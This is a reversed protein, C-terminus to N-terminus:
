DFTIRPNVIVYLIDAILIGLLTLVSSLYLIAMIINYDRHLISDFALFGMGSINFIKEIIVSGGILAPLITAAITIIPILSNRLAHKFVVMKESLGKARATRIYDQRLVDLMAGRMQRSLYAYSGLTLCFVPLIAHYIFKFFPFELSLKQAPFWRVPLGWIFAEGESAFLSILWLAVFFSPISYMMFLLVTIIRDWMSNEKVSLFVGLPIAIIYTILITSVALIITIKLRDWILENVTQGTYRMSKGFDFTALKKLWTWYQVYIPKDLDYQRRFEDIAEFSIQESKPAIQGGKQELLDAPNGPALHIIIFSIITIGFITPIM